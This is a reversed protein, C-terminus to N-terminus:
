HGPQSSAHDMAHGAFRELTRVLVDLGVPKVLYSEAHLEAAKERVAAHGSLLVIPIDRRRPDNRLRALVTEGDMRPMMMDLLILSPRLGAELQQLVEVGDCATKVAYGLARVAMALVERIDEDDDVILVLSRDNM